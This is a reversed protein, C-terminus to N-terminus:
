GSNRGQKIQDQNTPSLIHQKQIGELYVQCEALRWIVIVIHSISGVIFSLIDDKHDFTFRLPNEYEEPTCLHKNGQATFTKIIM